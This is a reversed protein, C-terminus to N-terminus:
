SRKVASCRLCWIRPQKSMGKGTLQSNSKIREAIDPAVLAAARRGSKTIFIAQTNGDDVKKLFTSLGERFERIGVEAVVDGRDTSMDMGGATVRRLVLRPSHVEFVVGSEGERSTRRM